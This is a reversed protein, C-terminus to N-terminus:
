TRYVIGLAIALVGLALAWLTLNFILRVVTSRPPNTVGQMSALGNLVVGLLLAAALSFAGVKVVVTLEKPTGFAALLGLVVGPATALINAVDRFPNSERVKSPDHPDEELDRHEPLRSVLVELALHALIFVGLLFVALHLAPDAQHEAHARPILSTFSVLVAAAGAILRFLRLM